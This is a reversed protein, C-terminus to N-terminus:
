SARYRVKFPVLRLGRLVDGFVAQREVVRRPDKEIRVPEVGLVRAAGITLFPPKGEAADFPPNIRDGVGHAASDHPQNRRPLGIAPFPPLVM